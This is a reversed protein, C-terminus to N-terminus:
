LKSLNSLDKGLQTKFIEWSPFQIDNGPGKELKVRHEPSSKRKHEVPIERRCGPSNGRMRDTDEESFPRAREADGVKEMMWVATLVILCIEKLNNAQKNEERLAERTTETNQSHNDAYGQRRGVAPLRM